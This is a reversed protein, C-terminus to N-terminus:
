PNNLRNRSNYNSTDIPNCDFCNVLAASLRNPGWHFFNKLAGGVLLPPGALFRQVLDSLSVRLQLTVQVQDSLTLKYLPCIITSGLFVFVYSVTRGRAGQQAGIIPVPKGRMEDASCNVM